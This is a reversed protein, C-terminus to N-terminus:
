EPAEARRREVLVKLAETARPHGPALTLVEAYAREAGRLDGSGLRADARLLWLQVRDSVRGSRLRASAAAPDGMELLARAADLVCGDEADCADRAAELLAHAEAPVGAARLASALNRRADLDDPVAALRRQLLPIAERPKGRAIRLMALDVAANPDEACCAFVRVLAHEAARLDERAIAVSAVARVWRVSEADPPGLAMIRQVAPEAHGLQAEAWARRLELTHRQQPTLALGQADARIVVDLLKKAADDAASAARSLREPDAPALLQVLAVLAGADNPSRELVRALKREHRAREAPTAAVPPAPSAHLDARDEARAPGELSTWLLSGVIGFM